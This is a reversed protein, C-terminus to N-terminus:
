FERWVELPMLSYGNTAVAVHRPNLLLLPFSHVVQTFHAASLFCVVLGRRCTSSHYLM